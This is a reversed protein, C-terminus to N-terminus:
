STRAAVLLIQGPWSSHIQEATRWARLGTECCLALRHRPDPLDSLLETQSLHRAQPHLPVPVEAPDRLDIVTDQPGLQAPAAFAFAHAPEAAGTFDFASSRLSLADFQVMRGLPSPDLGLILTLAMQAQMTGILAVAPGLVGASACSAGSDPADPFVARVSPAGGCFGGAYGGMGLASAAILPTNLAMCTDSLLYTAAYSDACDLVIDAASVFTEANEPTLATVHATVRGGANRARCERAAVQAKPAGIDDERFLTQRHLNSLEVQDPDLITLHGIGAGALLPLAPAALGGAGVVLVRAAALRAQGETGIGPLQMQRAYRNM